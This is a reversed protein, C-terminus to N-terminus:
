RPKRPRFDEDAPPDFEPLLAELEALKEELRDYHRAIKQLQKSQWAQREQLEQVKDPPNMALWVFDVRPRALGGENGRPQLTQLWVLALRELLGGVDPGADVLQAAGKGADLLLTATTARLSHPTYLCRSVRRM